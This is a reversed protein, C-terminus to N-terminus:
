PRQRRLLVLGGLGIALLSLSSPEPVATITDILITNTSTGAQLLDGGSRYSVAGGGALIEFRTVGSFTDNYLGTGGSGTAYTFNSSNLSFLQAAWGTSISLASSYFWGGAGDFAVRLSVPSSGSSVNTWLSIGTIGASLYNGTWDAHSTWMLWKGTASSGDSLHSLYGTLGDPGASAVRVPQIGAGGIQWSESSASFDDVSTMSVVGSALSITSVTVALILAPLKM